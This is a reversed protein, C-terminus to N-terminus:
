KLEVIKVMHKRLDSYAESAVYVSDLSLRDALNRLKNKMPTNIHGHPKCYIGAIKGNVNESIFKFASHEIRTVKLTRRELECKVARSFWNM